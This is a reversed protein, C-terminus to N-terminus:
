LRDASIDRRWLIAEPANYIEAAWWQNALAMVDQVRTGSAAVMPLWVVM